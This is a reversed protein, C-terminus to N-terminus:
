FFLVGVVDWLGQKERGAHNATACYRLLVRVPSVVEIPHGAVQIEHRLSGGEGLMQPAGRSRNRVSNRVLCLFLRSFNTFKFIVGRALFLNAELRLM